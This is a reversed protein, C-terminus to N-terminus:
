FLLIFLERETEGAANYIKNNNFDAFNANVDRANTPQESFGNSVKGNVQGGSGTSNLSNNSNYISAKSFDAVFDSNDSKISGNTSSSSGNHLHIGNGNLENQHQHHHTRHHHRNNAAPPTLKLVALNDSTHNSKAAVATGNTTASSQQQLITSTSTSTNISKLPSAPELYYRFHLVFLCFQGYFDIFGNLHHV